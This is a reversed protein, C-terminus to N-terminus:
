SNKKGFKSFCTIEIIIIYNIFESKQALEISRKKGRENASCKQLVSLYITGNLGIKAIKKKLDLDKM